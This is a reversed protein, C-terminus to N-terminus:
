HCVCRPKPRWKRVAPKRHSKVTEYYVEETVMTTTTTVPTMTITTVVPQPYYYYGGQWTQGYAPQPYGVQARPNRPRHRSCTKSAKEAAIGLLGGIGAGVLTGGTRNGRGAIRNGAVGGILAGIAAGKLGNSKLCREYNEYGRPVSYQDNGYGYDTEPYPVGAKGSNQRAAPYGPSAASDQRTVRGSWDGEFVKGQPDVYRGDWQGDYRYSSGDPAAFAVDSSDNWEYANADPRIAPSYEPERYDGTRDPGDNWSIDSRYDQVYGQNDTLVADDYYRSWYYGNSPASLGFNRFNSVHFTPQIWYRPLIFGRHPRRYVDTRPIGHYGPRPRFGIHRAGSGPMHMAEVGIIGSNKRANATAQIRNAGTVTLRQTVSDTAWLAPSAAMMMTASIGAFLITRMTLQERLM